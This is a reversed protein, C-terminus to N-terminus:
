DELIKFGLHDVIERELCNGEGGPTATFCICPNDAVCKNFEDPSEFLVADSEDFLLLDSPEKYFELAAHYKM